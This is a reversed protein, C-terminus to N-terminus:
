ACGGGNTVVASIQAEGSIRGNCLVARHELEGRLYRPIKMKAVRLGRIGLCEWMGSVIPM